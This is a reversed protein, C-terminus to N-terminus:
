YYQPLPWDTVAVIKDPDVSVGQKSIMHGLFSVEIQFFDCKKPNAYVQHQQMTFLVTHLHTM